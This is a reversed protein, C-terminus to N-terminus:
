EDRFVADLPLRNGPRQRYAFEGLDPPPAAATLVLMSLTLLIAARLKMATEGSSGALRSHGRRCDQADRDRDPHAGDRQDQRDLRHREAAANGRCLIAGHERPSEAGI